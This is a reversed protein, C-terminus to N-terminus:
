RFIAGGASEGGQSGVEALGGRQSWIEREKGIMEGQQAAPVIARFLLAFALEEQRMRIAGPGNAANETAGGAGNEAIRFGHLLGIAVGGPDDFGAEDM